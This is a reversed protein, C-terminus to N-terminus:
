QDDHVPSNTIPLRWSRLRSAESWLLQSLTPATQESLALFRRIADVVVCWLTQGKRSIGELCHQMEHRILGWTLFDDLNRYIYTGGSILREEVPTLMAGSEIRGHLYNAAVGHLTQLEARLVGTSGDSPTLSDVYVAAQTVAYILHCLVNQCFMGVYGQVDAGQLYVRTLTSWRGRWVVGRSEKLEQPIWDGRHAVFVVFIM